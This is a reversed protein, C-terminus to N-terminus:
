VRVISSNFYIFWIAMKLAFLSETWSKSVNFHSFSIRILRISYKILQLYSQLNQLILYFILIQTKMSLFHLRLNYHYLNHFGCWVLNYLLQHTKLFTIADLSQGKLLHSILIKNYWMYLFSHSGGLSALGFSPLPPPQYM